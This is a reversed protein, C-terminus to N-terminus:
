GLLWWRSRRYLIAENHQSAKKKLHALYHKRTVTWGPLQLQTDLVEYLGDDNEVIRYFLQNFFLRVEKVYPNLCVESKNPMVAIIQQRTCNETPAIPKVYLAEQPISELWPGRICGSLVPLRAKANLWFTFTILIVSALHPQLGPIRKM